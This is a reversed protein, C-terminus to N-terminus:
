EVVQLPECSVSEVQSEITTFLSLHVFDVTVINCIPTALWAVEVGDETLHRLLVTVTNCISAALWAVEVADKKLHQLLWVAEDVAEGVADLSYAIM